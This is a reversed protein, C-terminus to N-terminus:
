IVRSRRALFGTWGSFTVKSQPFIRQAAFYDRIDGRISVVESDTPIRPLEGLQWPKPKKKNIYPLAIGLLKPMAIDESLAGIIAHWRPNCALSLRAPEQLAVGCAILADGLHWPEFLILSTAKTM